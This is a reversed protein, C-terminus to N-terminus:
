YIVPTGLYIFFDKTYHFVFDDPNGKQDTSSYTIKPIIKTMERVFSESSNAEINEWLESDGNVIAAMAKEFKKYHAYSLIHGDNKAVAIWIM